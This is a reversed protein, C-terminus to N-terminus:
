LFRYQDSSLERLANLSVEQFGMRQLYGYHVTRDEVGMGATARARLITPASYIDEALDQNSLDQMLSLLALDPYMSRSWCRNAAFALVGVISIAAMGVFWKKEYSDSVRIGIKLHREKRLISEDSKIKFKPPTSSYSYEGFGALVGHQIAKQALAASLPPDCTFNAIYAPRNHINENLPTDMAERVSCREPSLSAHVARYMTRATNEDLIRIPSSKDFSVRRIIYSTVWLYRDKDVTQNGQGDTNFSVNGIWLTLADIKNEVTSLTWGSPLTSKANLIGYESRVCLSQEYIAYVSRNFVSVSNEICDHENLKTNRLTQLHHGDVVMHRGMLSYTLVDPTFLTSSVSGTSLILITETTMSIVSALLFLFTIRVVRSTPPPSRKNQLARCVFFGKLFSPIIEFSVILHSLTDRTDVHTHRRSLNEPAPLLFKVIRSTLSTISAIATATLLGYLLGDWEFVFTM